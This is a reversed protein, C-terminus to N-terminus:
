PLVYNIEVANNLTSSFLNSVKLVSISRRIAIIEIIQTAMTSRRTINRSGLSNSGTIPIHIMTTEM